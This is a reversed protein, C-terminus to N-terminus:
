RRRGRAGRWGRLGAVEHRLQRLARIEDKVQRYQFYRLALLAVSGLILGGVLIEKTTAGEGLASGRLPAGCPACSCGPSCSGLGGFYAEADPPGDITLVSM